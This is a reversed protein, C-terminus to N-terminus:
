GRDEDMRRELAAMVQGLRGLYERFLAEAEERGAAAGGAQEYAEIAGLVCQFHTLETDDELHAYIYTLARERTAEDFGHHADILAAFARHALTYEAHNYVESLLNTLLGLEIPALVMNRYVWRGFDRAEPIGHHARTWDDDPLFAGAFDMYLDAHSVGGYDLGLDEHSTEANRAAADLLQRARPECAGVALRQIRCSLGYIALMKLHTARWSHFFCALFDRSRPREPLRQFFREVLALSPAGEEFASLLAARLAPRSVSQAAPVLLESLHPQPANM